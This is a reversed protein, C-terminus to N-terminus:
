CKKFREKLEALVIIAGSLNAQVLTPLEKNKLRRHFEKLREKIEKHFFKLTEKRGQEIYKEKKEKKM